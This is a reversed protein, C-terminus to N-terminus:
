PNSVARALDRHWHSDPSVLRLAEVLWGRQDADMRKVAARFDIEDKERTGTAKYLLQIEPAIIPLGTATVSFADSLLRSVREDRRFHWVDDRVTAFMVQIRWTSEPEPRCWVSNVDGPVPLAPNWPTLRGGSALRLDWGSMVTALKRACNRPIEVDIDDHPRIPVGAFLEIASAGAIWWPGDFPEFLEQVEVPSLPNWHGPGANAGM